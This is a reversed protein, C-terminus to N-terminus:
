ILAFQTDDYSGGFTGELHVVKVLAGLVLRQSGREVRSAFQDYRRGERVLSVIGVEGEGALQKVM